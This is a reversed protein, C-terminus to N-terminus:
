YNREKRNRKETEKGKRAYQLSQKIKDYLKRLTTFM